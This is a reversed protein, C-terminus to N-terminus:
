HPQSAWQRAAEETEFVPAYQRLGMLDFIKRYHQSLGTVLLQQQRQRAETLIGILVSIGASDMHEVGAFNLLLDRAGMACADVYASRFPQDANATVAGCLDLVVLPQAQRITVTVSQPM